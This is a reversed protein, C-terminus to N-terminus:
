KDGTLTEIVQKITNPIWGAVYDSQLDDQDKLPRIRLCIASGHQDYFRFEYNETFVIYFTGNNQKTETVTLDNAKLAKLISATKM